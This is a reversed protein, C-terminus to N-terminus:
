RASSGQESQHPCKGHGTGGPLGGREPSPTPNHQIIFNYWDAVWLNGDPGIEAAVPSFWEDASAIISFNNIAKYGSGEPINRFSGLLNGTPGCVFSVVDRWAAPFNASTALAYGAGSTYRGFADVQRINPTIPHFVPTDAIMKASRGQQGRYGTDPFGGFFAPNNNATSGFVDGKEDFGLGWTNNNFQHLFAIDSGDPKM